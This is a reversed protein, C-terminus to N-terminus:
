VRSEEEERDREELAMKWGDAFAEQKLAEIPDQVDSCCECVEDPYDELEPTYIPDGCEACFKVSM